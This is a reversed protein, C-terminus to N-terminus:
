SLKTILTHYLDSDTSCLKRTVLGNATMDSLELVYNFNQVSPLNKSISATNLPMIFDLEKPSRCFLLVQDLLWFHGMRLKVQDRSEKVVWAIDGDLLLKRHQLNLTAIHPYKKLLNRELDVLKDADGTSQNIEDLIQELMFQTADVKRREETILPGAASGSGGDRHASNPMPNIAGNKTLNASSQSSLSPLSTLSNSFNANSGNAGNASSGISGSDLSKSLERFLLPLKCLRQLPKIIFADFSLGRCEPIKRVEECFSAFSPNTSLQETMLKLTRDQRACFPIYCHLSTLHAQFILAVDIPKLAKKGKLDRMMAQEVSILTELGEFFIDHVDAPVVSREKMPLAFVSLTLCLDQVYDEHTIVIEQIVRNDSISDDVRLSPRSPATIISPQPGGPAPLTTSGGAAASGARDRPSISLKAAGGIPLQYPTQQMSASVSVSRAHAAAYNVDRPSTNGGNSSSNANSSGNSSNGGKSGNSAALERPSLNTERVVGNPGVPLVPVLIMPKYSLDTGTSKAPRNPAPNSPLAPLASKKAELSPLAAVTNSLPHNRLAALNPSSSPAIHSVKPQPRLPATKSPTLTPTPADSSFPVNHAGTSNTLGNSNRIDKRPASPAAKTPIPPANHSPPRNPPVSHSNSSTPPKHPASTISRSFPIGASSSISPRPSVNPSVPPPPAAYNPVPPVLFVILDGNDEGDDTAWHEGSQTMLRSKVSM